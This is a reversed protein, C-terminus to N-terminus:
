RLDKVSEGTNSSFTQPRLRPLKRRLLRAKREREDEGGSEWVNRGKDAGEELSSRTRIIKPEM